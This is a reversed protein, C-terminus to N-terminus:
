QPLRGQLAMGSDIADGEMEVPAPEYDYTPADDDDDQEEEDDDDSDDPQTYYEPSELELARRPTPMAPLAAPTPSLSVPAVGRCAGLGAMAVLLVTMFAAKHGALPQSRWRMM